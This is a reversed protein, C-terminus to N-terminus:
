GRQDTGDPSNDDVFIIEWAVGALAADIREVLTVISDRECYTPIVVTLEPAGQPANAVRQRAHPKRIWLIM